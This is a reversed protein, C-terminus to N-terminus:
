VVTEDMQSLLELVEVILQDIIQKPNEAFAGTSRNALLASISIAEHGLANALGYIGATEMEINTIEVGAIGKAELHKIFDPVKADLNVSRGQPAYFGPATITVGVDKFTKSFYTVLKSSAKAFYPAPLAKLEPCNQEFEEKLSKDEAVDYFHLLGDFGIALGTVLTTGLATNPQVAGSTGIRVITLTEFRQKPRRTEFDINKLAHLENLVIDINDTGIGTSIVSLRKGKFTGTHTVFERSQKTFEITDFHQSVQGVRDQDGVTIILNAVEDPLLALHYISGDSNLILESSKM